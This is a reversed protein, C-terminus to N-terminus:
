FFWALCAFGVLEAVQETAGLFDGTYGWARRQFVRACYITFLGIIVFLLILVDVVQPYFLTVVACTMVGWNTATFAHLFGCKALDRSRSNAPSAYTMTAMMWVPAVRALSWVLPLAWLANAGLDALLAARGGITCVLAAGGFAGIRSDKLIEFLKERTYSGGLADATDALGDEHFCGTLLLSAAITLFAAGLTGVPLLATMLLGLGLGLVAGVLPFHAPAAAFEAKTYPWGPIPLRTLFIFAAGIGGFWRKRPERKHKRAM